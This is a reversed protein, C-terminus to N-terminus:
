ARRAQRGNSISYVESREAPSIQVLGSRARRRRNAWNGGAAVAGSV